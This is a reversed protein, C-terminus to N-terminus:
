LYTLVWGSEHTLKGDTYTYTKTFAESNSTRVETAITGDPNYNYTRPLTNFTEPLPDGDTNFGTIAEVRERLLNIGGQWQNAFGNQLPNGISGMLAGLTGLIQQQIGKVEAVGNQWQDAFGNQLPTGVSAALSTLASLTQLQNAGAEDMRTEFAAQTVLLALADTIPGIDISGGGGQSGTLQASSYPMVPFDVFLVVAPGAGRIIVEQDMPAPYPTCFFEGAEVFGAFNLGKILFELRATGRTNDVYLGYPRFAKGQESSLQRFDVSYNKGAEMDAEFKFCRPAGSAPILYNVMEAIFGTM